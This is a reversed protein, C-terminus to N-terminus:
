TATDTFLIQRFLEVVTSPFFLLQLLTYCKFLGYKVNNANSDSWM